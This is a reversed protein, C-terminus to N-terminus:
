RTGISNKHAIKHARVISEHCECQMCQAKVASQVASVTHQLSLSMEFFYAFILFQICIYIAILIWIWVEYGFRSIVVHTINFITLIRSFMNDVLYAAKEKFPPWEAVSVLSFYYLCM